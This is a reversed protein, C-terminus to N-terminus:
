QLVFEFDEDDVISQAYAEISEPPLEVGVSGFAAQARPLVVDLPEGSLEQRLALDVQNISAAVQNYIAQMGDDNMEFKVM